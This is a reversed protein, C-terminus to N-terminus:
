ERISHVAIHTRTRQKAAHRLWFDFNASSSTIACPDAISVSYPRHLEPCLRPSTLWVASVRRGRAVGSNGCHCSTRQGRTTFRGHGPPLSPPICSALFHPPFGPPSQFRYVLHLHWVPVAAAVRLHVERLGNDTALRLKFFVFMPPLFVPDQSCHFIEFKM